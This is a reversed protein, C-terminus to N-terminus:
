RVSKKSSICNNVISEVALEAITKMQEYLRDREAESLEIFEQNLLQRSGSKYEM